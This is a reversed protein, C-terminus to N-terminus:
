YSLLGVFEFKRLPPPHVIDKIHWQQFLVSDALLPHIFPHFFQFELGAVTLLVFYLSNPIAGDVGALRLQDAVLGISSPLM